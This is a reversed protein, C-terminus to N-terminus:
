ERWAGRAPDYSCVAAHLAPQRRKALDVAACDACAFRFECASCGVVDNKTMRWYKEHRRERFINRLPELGAHGFLRDEIMPCPRISLDAAIAITGFLCPHTERRGFFQDPGVQPVRARGTTALSSAPRVGGDEGVRIRESAYVRQAGLSSGWKRREVAADHPVDALRLTVNFPIARRQASAIADMAADFASADGCVAEYEEPSEGLVIFNLKAGTEAIRDLLEPTAATGNTSIFLMPKQPREQLRHIAYLLLDPDTFPDGGSFFVSRIDLPEIQEALRDIAATSWVADRPVGPWRECSNCGQWVAGESSGCGKCSLGCSSTLSLQLVNIVLPPEVLGNLDIKLAPMFRDHRGTSDRRRGFAEACLREVFADIEERAYGQVADIPVDRDLQDLIRTESATLPQVRRRMFDYLAGAHAGTEFFVDQHLSFYRM